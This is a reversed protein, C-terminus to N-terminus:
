VNGRNPVHSDSVGIAYVRVRVSVQSEVRSDSLFIWEPGREVRPGPVAADVVVETVGRSTCTNPADAGTVAVGELVVAVGSIPKGEKKVQGRIHGHDKAQSLVPLLLVALLGVLGIRTKM